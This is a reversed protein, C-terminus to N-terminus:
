WLRDLQWRKQRPSPRRRRQFQGTIMSSASQYMTTAARATATTRYSSSLTHALLLSVFVSSCISPFVQFITQPSGIRIVSILFNQYRAIRLAPRQTRLNSPCPIFHSTTSLFNREPWSVVIDFWSIQRRFAGLSHDDMRKSSSCSILRPLPLACM